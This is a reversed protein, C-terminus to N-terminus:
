NTFENSPGNKMATTTNLFVAPRTNYCHENTSIANKEGKQCVYVFSRIKVFGCAPTKITRSLLFARVYVRRTKMATTLRSRKTSSRIKLLRGVRYPQRQTRLGDSISPATTNFISVNGAITSASTVVYLKEFDTMCQAPM